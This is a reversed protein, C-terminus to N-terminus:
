SVLILVRSTGVAPVIVDSSRTRNETNKRTVVSKSPKKNQTRKIRYALHFITKILFRAIRIYMHMIYGRKEWYGTATWTIIINITLFAAM